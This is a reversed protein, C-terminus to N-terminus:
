SIVLDRTAVSFKNGGIHHLLELGNDFRWAGDAFSQADAVAAVVQAILLASAGLDVVQCVRCELNAIAENVLPPKILTSPQRTLGVAEWKDDLDRGSMKGAGMVQNALRTCPVNIGFEGSRAIFEYSYHSKGSEIAVLPPDKRVPMNWAVTFLNDKRGDGVSIVVVPGHNILRTASAAPVVRKKM